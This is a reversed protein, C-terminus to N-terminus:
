EQESRDGPTATAEKAWEERTCITRALGGGVLLGLLPRARVLLAALGGTLRRPWVYSVDFAGPRVVLHGGFSLKYRAQRGRSTDPLPRGELLARTAAQHIGGFDLWTCGREKGWLIAQWILLAHANLEKYRGDDVLFLATVVDGFRLAVQAAFAEGKHEALLLALYGGPSFISWLDRYYTEPGPDYGRQRSHAQVLRYLTPLDAQAGLRITTGRRCGRRISKRREHPMQALLSDPEPRIDLWATALPAAELTSPRASRERLRQALDDAGFPPQIKLFRVREASVVRDLQDLVFKQIEPEHSAVVPGKPVYGVQGLLPLPHLLVQAGGVIDGSRRVVLRLCRWGNAINLAAWLSSQQYCGDPRTELFSDWEPDLGQTSVSVQLM